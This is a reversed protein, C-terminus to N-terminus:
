RYDKWAQEITRYKRYMRTDIFRKFRRGSSVYPMIYPDFGADHIKQCRYLDEELSTNFGILVYVMGKPAIELGELIKKEDEMLDWAYHIYGDFKTNKLAMAKDYNILRLDYGNEDIVTLDAAWIEDFTEM